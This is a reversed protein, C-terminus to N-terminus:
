GPPWSFARGGLVHCHLHFVSQGAGAGQNIVLRYGAESLGLKAAVARAALIVRGILPAQDASVDEVSAMHKRPIVLVHVPAAPHADHFAVLDDDEFVVKAPITRSVIKCFICATPNSSTM